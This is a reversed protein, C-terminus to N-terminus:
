NKGTGFFLEDFGDGASKRRIVSVRSRSSPTIGFEVMYGRMQKLCDEVVRLYPSPEFWGDKNRLMVGFEDLKGQADKWRAYLTCFMELAPLDGQTLVGTAVLVKATRRWQKRAEGKIHRPCPPVKDLATPSPEDPNVRDPRLTGALEKIAKPKTRPGSRGKVGAM